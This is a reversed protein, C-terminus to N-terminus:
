LDPDILKWLQDLDPAGSGRRSADSSPALSGTLFEPCSTLVHVQRFVRFSEYDPYPEFDVYM